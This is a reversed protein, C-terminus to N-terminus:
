RFVQNEIQVSCSSGSKICTGGPCVFSPVRVADSRISGVAVNWFTNVKVQCVGVKCAGIRTQAVKLAKTTAKHVLLDIAPM